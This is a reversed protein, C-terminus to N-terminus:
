RSFAINPKVKERHANPHQRLLGKGNLGQLSRVCQNGGYRRWRVHCYALKYREEISDFACSLIRLGTKLSEPTRLSGSIRKSLFTRFGGRMTCTTRRPIDPSCSRSLSPLPLKTKWHGTASM